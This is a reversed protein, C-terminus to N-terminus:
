NFYADTFSEAAVAEDTNKEPLLGKTQVGVTIM